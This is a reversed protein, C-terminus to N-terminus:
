HYFSSIVKGDSILLRVNNYKYIENGYSLDDYQYIQINIGSHWSKLLNEAEVQTKNELINLNRLDGQIDVCTNSM